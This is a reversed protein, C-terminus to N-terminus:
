EGKYKFTFLHNTIEAIIKFHGELVCVQFFTCGQFHVTM